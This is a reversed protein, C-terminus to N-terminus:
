WETGYLRSLGVYKNTKGIIAASIKIEDSIEQEGSWVVLEFIGFGFEESKKQGMPILKVLRTQKNVIWKTRWINQWFEPNTIM